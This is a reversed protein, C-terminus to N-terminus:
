LDGTRLSSICSACTIAIALADSADDSKPLSSIGLIMKLMRQVQKKEAKGYGCLAVKVELPTYERIAIGASTALYILIGRAEAVQLATKQNKAFFIKELAIVKPQYKKILSSTEEAIKLLRKEHAIKPSTEVYGCDLVATKNGATEIIAYGLRGFGPDIGLIKM